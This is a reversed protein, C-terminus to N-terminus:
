GQGSITVTLDDGKAAIEAGKIPGLLEQASSVKGVAKGDTTKVDLILFEDNGYPLVSLRWNGDLSPPDDAWTATGSAALALALTLFTATLKRMSSAGPALSPSGRLRERDHSPGTAIM